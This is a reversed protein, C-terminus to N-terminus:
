RANCRENMPRACSYFAKYPKGAKSVGAPVLKMAEGHECLKQGAPAPPAYGAPAPPPTQAVPAPHNWDPVTQTEVVEAGPFVKQITAVPSVAMHEVTRELDVLTALRQTVADILTDLEEGNTARLNILMGDKKTKFNIQIPSDQSM